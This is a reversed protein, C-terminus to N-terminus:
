VAKSKLVRSVNFSYNHLVKTKGNDNVLADSHSILVGLFDTFLFLNAIKSMQPFVFIVM